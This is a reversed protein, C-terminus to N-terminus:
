FADDEEEENKKQKTKFISVWENFENRKDEEGTSRISYRCHSM